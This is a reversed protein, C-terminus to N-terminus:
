PSAGTDHRPGAPTLPDERAVGGARRRARLWRAIRGASRARPRPTERVDVPWGVAALARHLLQLARTAEFDDSRRHLRRVFVGSAAELPQRRGGALAVLEDVGAQGPADSGALEITRSVIAPVQGPCHEDRAVAEGVRPVSSCEHDVDGCAGPAGISLQSAPSVAPYPLSAM